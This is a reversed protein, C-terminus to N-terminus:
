CRRPSKRLGEIIDRGSKEHMAAHQLSWGFWSRKKIHACCVEVMAAHPSIEESLVREHLDPRDKRLKRLAYTNSTGQASKEVPDNM